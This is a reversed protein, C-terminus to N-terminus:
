STSIYVFSHSRAAHPCRGDSWASPNFYCAILDRFDKWKQQTCLSTDIFLRELFGVNKWVNGGSSVTSWPWEKNVHNCKKMELLFLIGCSLQEFYICRLKPQAPPIPPLDPTHHQRCQGRVYVCVCARGRASTHFKGAGTVCLLM